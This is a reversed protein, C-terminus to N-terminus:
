SDVGGDGCFRKNKTPDPTYDQYDIDDDDNGDGDGSGDGPKKKEEVVQKSLTTKAQKVLRPGKLFFTELGSM